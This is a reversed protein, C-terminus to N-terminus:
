RHETKLTIQAVKCMSPHLDVWAHVRLYRARSEDSAPIQQAADHEDDLAIARCLAAAALDYQQDTDHLRACALWSTADAPRRDTLAILIREAEAFQGQRGLLPALAWFGAPFDPDAAVARRLAQEAEAVRDLRRYLEGLRTLVRADDPALASARQLWAEAADNWGEPGEAM